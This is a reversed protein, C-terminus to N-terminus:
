KFSINIGLNTVRQIPYALGNGGMEIDWLKFNSFTFLNNSNLYIRANSLRLKDMVRKPLTYGFEVQKIRLLSGDRMFWTSTQANNENV